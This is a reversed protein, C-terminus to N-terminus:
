SALIMLSLGDIPGREMAQQRLPPRERVYTIRCVECIVRKEFIKSLAVPSAM